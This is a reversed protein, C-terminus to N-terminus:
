RRDDRVVAGGKIVGTVRTLESIDALPDGNVAVLDGYRGVEVAGVDASWGMIDAAVITAARIAQMPTMGYRVMYAFQRANDGHPFVGADTGFGVTVGAKLAQAFGARQVDTTERNKRLYGEPWGDRRGVTDIYDGNYIDMVLAVGAQKAMTLAEADILSAHEISHVGARIAAKIGEAGHAHATARGGRNKAEAVVARMTAEDLEVQGPETGETLVAGTAIIKISDVGRQFLYATKLRAEEANRVVGVRMDAPVAVDPAFGAVEGGGGPATIYAGVVNMRPGAVRGANIADRLAVDTFARYCGVDRVSTFGARLTARANAAGMLAVEAPSHLLPEAVNSTMGWDALHTHLDILGPLVTRDSWDIVTGAPVPAWPGVSAIRGNEIVIRQDALVRGTVVDILRGARVSVTEAWAPAAFAVMLVILWRRM